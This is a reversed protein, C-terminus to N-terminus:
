SGTVKNQDTIMDVHQSFIRKATRVQLPEPGAERIHGSGITCAQARKGLLHGGLLSDIELLPNVQRRM